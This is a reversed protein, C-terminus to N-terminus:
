FPGKIDDLAGSICNLSDNPLMQHEYLMTILLFISNPVTRPTSSLLLTGLQEQQTWCSPVGIFPSGPPAPWTPLWTLQGTSPKLLEDPSMTVNWCHPILPLACKDPCVLVSACLCRGLCDDSSQHECDKYFLLCTLPEHILTCYSM